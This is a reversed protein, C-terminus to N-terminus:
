SERPLGGTGAAASPVHRKRTSRRVSIAPFEISANLSGVASIWALTMANAPIHTNFDVLSHLLMAVLAGACAIVLLRRDEDGVNLIGRITQVVIGVVIVALIAFGAFGLEAIYELYDNHAFEVRFVNDTAQYKLFASEFGGLGTGFVRFESIVPLTEKWLAPRTDASARETSSIAAFREILRDPPFFILVLLIAVGILGLSSWRWARSPLRPGISLAVILFLVCLAVLFGMRSLSYIIALLLLAALSWVGCAAVAPLAPSDFRAQRRRLIALGYLAAIPLVMELLGAFHDRNTYTGIAEGSPWSLFVQFMGIAAQLAAIVILPIVPTWPRSAWRWALERVLLFTAIYAAITFLALTAAPPNVSLPAWAIGPLIPALASVLLARAPSLTELVRLPLPILQFALYCLFFSIPWRLWRSLPPARHTPRTFLWYGTSICGVACLAVDWDEPWVGGKLFVPWSLALSLLALAIAPGLM